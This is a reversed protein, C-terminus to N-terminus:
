KRASNQGACPCRLQCNWLVNRLVNLLLHSGGQPGKEARHYGGFFASCNFWNSERFPAVHCQMTPRLKPLKTVCPVRGGEKGEGGADFEQMWVVYWESVYSLLRVSVFCKM